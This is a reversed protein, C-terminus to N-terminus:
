CGHQSRHAQLRLRSEKLMVRVEGCRASAVNFASHDAAVLVMLKSALTSLRNTLVASKEELDRRTPCQRVAISMPPNGEELAAPPVTKVARSM